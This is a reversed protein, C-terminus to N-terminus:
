RWKRARVDLPTQMSMIAVMAASLRPPISCFSLCASAAYFSGVCLGGGCCLSRFCGVHRGHHAVVNPIRARRSFRVRRIYHYGAIVPVGARNRAVCAMTPISSLSGVRIRSPAGRRNGHTLTLATVLLDQGFWARYAPTVLTSTAGNYSTRAPHPYPAWSAWM